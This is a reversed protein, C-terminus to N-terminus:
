DTLATIGSVARCAVRDGSSKGTGLAGDNHRITVELYGKTDQAIQQTRGAPIVYTNEFTIELITWAGANQIQNTVAFSQFPQPDVEYYFSQSESITIGDAQGYTTVDFLYIGEYNPTTLVNELLLSHSVSLAFGASLEVRIYNDINYCSASDVYVGTDGPSIRCM